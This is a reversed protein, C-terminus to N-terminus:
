PLVMSPHQGWTCPSCEPAAQPTRILCSPQPVPRGKFLVDM